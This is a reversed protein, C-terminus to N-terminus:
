VCVRTRWLSIKKWARTQGRLPDCKLTFNRMCYKGFIKIVNGKEGTERETCNREACRGRFPTILLSSEALKRVRRPLRAAESNFRLKIPATDSLHFIVRLLRHRRLQRPHRCSPIIVTSLPFDRSWLGAPLRSVNRRDVSVSTWKPPTRTSIRAHVVRHCSAGDEDASRDDVEGGIANPRRYRHTQKHM